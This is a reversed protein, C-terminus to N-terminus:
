DWIFDLAVIYKSSSSDFEGYLNGIEAFIQHTSKNAVRNVHLIVDLTCAHCRIDHFCNNQSWSSVLSDLSVCNM